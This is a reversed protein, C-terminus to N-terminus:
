VRTHHLGGYTIVHAEGGVRDECLGPDAPHATVRSLCVVAGDCGYLIEWPGSTLERLLFNTCFWCLGPSLSCIGFLYIPFVQMELPWLLCHSMVFSKTRSLTKKLSSPLLSCLSHPPYCDMWCGIWCDFSKVSALFTEYGVM